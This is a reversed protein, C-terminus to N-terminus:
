QVNSTASTASPRPASPLSCMAGDCPGTSAAARRARWTIACTLEFTGQTCPESHGASRGIACTSSVASAGGCIDSLSGPATSRAIAACRTGSTRSPAQRCSPMPANGDATKAKVEALAGAIPAEATAEFIVPIVEANPQVNIPTMKVGAPLNSAILQLDGSANNRTVRLTAGYRGGRPVAIAQRDQNDRVMQPIALTVSPQSPTVEVRYVSTPSGGRLHDRVRVFYEGDAGIPLRVKTRAPDPLLQAKAPDRKMRRTDAFAVLYARHEAALPPSVRFEGELETTYGM